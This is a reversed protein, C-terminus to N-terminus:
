ILDLQKLRLLDINNTNSEKLAEKIQNKITFKLDLNSDLYQPVTTRDYGFNICDFGLDQFNKLFLPIEELALTTLTMRGNIRCNTEKRKRALRIRQVNDIVLDFNSGRNIREHTNKLFANISISVIRADKALMNAIKNNILLGNTLLTYKRRKNGLYRLYNLCNQIFLPEGGQIVIDEFPDVDVNKILIKENLISPDNSYKTPHKCMICKINCQNGFHIHIRKMDEYKINLDKSTPANIEHKDFLNCKNYCELKGQMSKLRYKVIEKNNSLDSLEDRYVNGFNVPKIHCCSFVNGRHDLTINDWLSPCFTNKM